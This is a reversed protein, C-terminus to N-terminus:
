TTPVGSFPSVTAGGQYDLPVDVNIVGRKADVKMLSDHFALKDKPVLGSPFKYGTASALLLYDNEPVFFQFIGNRNAIKSDVLENNESKYLKVFSPAVPAKTGSDYVYGWARPKKTEGLLKLSLLIFYLIAFLLNVFNFRLVTVFLNVVFMFSLMFFNGQLVFTRLKVFILKLFQFSIRFKQDKSDLPISFDITTDNQITFEGGTYIYGM